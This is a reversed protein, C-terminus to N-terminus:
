LPLDMSFADVAFGIREFFARAGADDGDLSLRIRTCERDAFVGRAHAVLAHGVGGLRHEPAVAVRFIQGVNEGAKLEMSFWVWGLVDHDREAVVVWHGREIAEQLAHGETLAVLSSRGSAREIRVIADFHAPTADIITLTSAPM